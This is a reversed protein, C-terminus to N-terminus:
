NETRSRRSRRKRARKRAEKKLTKETDRVRQKKMYRYGVYGAPASVLTFAAIVQWVSLPTIVVPQGIVDITDFFVQGLNGSEDEVECYLSIRDGAVFHGLAARWILHDTELAVLTMNLPVYAGDNLRWYLICSTVGSHTPFEYTAIEIMIEEGEM